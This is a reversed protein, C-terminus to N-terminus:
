WHVGISERWMEWTIAQMAAPSEGRAKAAMRYVGAFQAYVGKRGLISRAADNTQRGIAIDFAHRDIVPSHDGDPDAISLFFARTKNARLVDLADTGSYIALAKRVNSSLGIGNAKTVPDIVVNGELAYLLRAKAINNSWVNMPSLAAIIGAARMYRRPDIDRATDHALHYWSRGFEVAHPYANDYVALVNSVQPTFDM